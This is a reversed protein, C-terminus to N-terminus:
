DQSRQAIPLLCPNEPAEPGARRWVCTDLDGLRGPPKPDCIDPNSDLQAAQGSRSNGMQLVLHRRRESSLPSCISWRSAGGLLGRRIRQRWLVQRQRGLTGLFVAEQDKPAIVM